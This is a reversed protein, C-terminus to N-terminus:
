SEVTVATGLEAWEYLWKSSALPLEVCGQSAKGSDPSTKGFESDKRWTADHFGYTGDQNDLFPMWYYVPERRTERGTQGNLTINTMKGYVKYNGAPTETEPRGRLGTIVPTEFVLTNGECAWLSRAQVGIKILKDATNGKCYDVKGPAAMAVAQRGNQNAPVVADKNAPNGKLLPLGLLAGGILATIILAKTGRRSQRPTTARSAPTPLAAPRRGSYYYAYKNLSRPRITKNGLPLVSM